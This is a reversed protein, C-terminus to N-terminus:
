FFSFLSLLMSLHFVDSIICVLSLCILFLCVQLKQSREPGVIIAEKLPFVHYKFSQTYLILAKSFQAKFEARAVHIQTYKPLCNM